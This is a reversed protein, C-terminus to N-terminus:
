NFIMIPSREYFKINVGSRGTCKKTYSSQYKQIPQTAVSQQVGRGQLVQRHVPGKYSVKSQIYKDKNITQAVFAFYSKKKEIIKIIACLNLVCSFAQAHPTKADM